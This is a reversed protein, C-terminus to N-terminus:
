IPTTGLKSLMRPVKKRCGFKQSTFCGRECPKRTCSKLSSPHELLSGDGAGTKYNYNQRLTRHGTRINRPKSQRWAEIHIPSCVRAPTITIHKQWFAIAHQSDVIHEQRYLWCTHWMLTSVNFNQPPFFRSQLCLSTLRNIEYYSLRMSYWM